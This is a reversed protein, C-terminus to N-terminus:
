APTEIPEVYGARRRLLLCYYVVYFATVFTLFVMGLGVATVAGDRWEAEETGSEETSTPLFHLLLVALVAALWLFVLLVASVSLGCPRRFARSSFSYVVFPVSDEFMFRQRAAPEQRSGSGSINPGDRNGSVDNNSASGVNSRGNGGNSSRNSDNSSRKSSGNISGALSTTYCDTMASNGVSSGSIGRSGDDRNKSDGGTTTTTTFTKCSSGDSTSAQSPTASPALTETSAGCTETASACGGKGDFQEPARSVVNLSM